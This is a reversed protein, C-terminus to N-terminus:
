GDDEAPRAPARRRARYDAVARRVVADPDPLGRLGAMIRIAGAAADHPLGARDRLQAYQARLFGEPDRRWVDGGEAM